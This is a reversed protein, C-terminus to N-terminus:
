AGFEIACAGLEMRLIIAGQGPFLGCAGPEM